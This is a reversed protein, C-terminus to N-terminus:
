VHEIHDLGQQFLEHIHEDDLSYYVMKGQRRYKVFNLNRLYRLQHSVASQSLNLVVGLDCVCLEKLKLAHILKVRTPDGLARFLTALKKAKADQIINELVERVALAHICESDCLFDREDM